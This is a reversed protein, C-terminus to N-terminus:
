FYLLVEDTALEGREHPEAHSTLESSISCVLDFLYMNIYLIGLYVADGM